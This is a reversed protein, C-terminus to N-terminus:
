RGEKCWATSLAEKCVQATGLGWCLSMSREAAPPPLRLFVHKTCTDKEEQCAGPGDYSSRQYKLYAIEYGSPVKSARLFNIWLFFHKLEKRLRGMGREFVVDIGM